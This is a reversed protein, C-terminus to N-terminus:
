AAETPRRSTTTLFLNIMSKARGGFAGGGGIVRLRNAGLQARRLEASVRKRLVGDSV